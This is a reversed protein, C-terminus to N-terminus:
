DDSYVKNYYLVSGTFTELFKNEGNMFDDLSCTAAATFTGEDDVGTISVLVRDNETWIEVEGYEKTESFSIKGDILWNLQLAEFPLTDPNEKSRIRDKLVLEPIRYKEKPLGLEKAQKSIELLAEDTYDSDYRYSWDILQSITGDLGLDENYIQIDENTMM